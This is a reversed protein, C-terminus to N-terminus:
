LPGSRLTQGCGALLHGERRKGGEGFDVRSLHPSPPPARSMQRPLKPGAGPRSGCDVSAVTPHGKPGWAVAAEAEGAPHLACLAPAILDGPSDGPAIQDGCDYARVGDPGSARCAPCSSSRLPGGQAQRRASRARRAASREGLGSVLRPPLPPATGPAPVTVRRSPCGVSVRTGWGDGGGGRCCLLNCFSHRDWDLTGTIWPEAPEETGGAASDSGLAPSIRPQPASTRASAALWALRTGAARGGREAGAGARRLGAEEGAEARRGAEERGGEPQPPSAPSRLARRRRWARVSRLAPPPVLRQAVPLLACFPLRHGSRSAAQHWWREWAFVGRERRRAAARLGPFSSPEWRATHQATHAHSDNTLKQPNGRTHESKLTLFRFSSALNM